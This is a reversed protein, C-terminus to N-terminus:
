LLVQTTPDVMKLYGFDHMRIQEMDTPSCSDRDIYVGDFDTQLQPISWPTVLVISCHPNNLDVSEVFFQRVKELNVTLESVYLYRGPIGQNYLDLLEDKLYRTHCDDCIWSAAHMVLVNGPGPKDCKQCKLSM